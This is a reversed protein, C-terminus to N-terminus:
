GVNLSIVLIKSCFVSFLDPFVFYIAKTKSCLVKNIFFVTQPVFSAGAM